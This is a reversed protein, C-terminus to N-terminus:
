LAPAKRAAASETRPTAQQDGSSKALFERWGNQIHDVMAEVAGTQDGAEVKKLFIEHEAQMRETRSFKQDQDTFPYKAWLVRVFHLTQPRGAAEYLTFHFRYNATRIGSLDRSRNAGAVQDQIARLEALTAPTMHQLAHATLDRELKLRLEYIELAQAPQFEPVLVGKHAHGLVYGEADLMQLAERVPTISVGLEKAIDAQKLKEGRRYIGAIIRERLIEAVQDQKTRFAM